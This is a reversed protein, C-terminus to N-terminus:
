FSYRAVRAVWKTLSEPDPLPWDDLALRGLCSSLRDWEARNTTDWYRSALMGTTEESLQWEATPTEKLWLLWPRALVPFASTVALLLLPVRYTGPQDKVGLYASWEEESVGVRILSYTNAFRKLARPTTFFLQFREVDEVEKKTLTLRQPDPAARTAEEAPVTRPEPVVEPPASHSLPAEDDTNLETTAPLLALNDGSITEIRDSSAIEFTTRVPFLDKVMAEFGSKEMADLQFPVQFIKELYDQPTAPLGLKREPQTSASDAGGLLRPYHDLLSQRLWRPDVAVVVAFLPFALLLHVAELVEVVREARCRDLDDIYLVIRDIKPLEADKAEGTQMLLKSLQEFDRRVLSVLGLHRRYDDASARQKLFRILQRGPAMESLEARILKMKEEAQQLTHRAEEEAQQKAALEKQARAADDKSERAARVQKVEDYSSELKTILKNGANIKAALWTSLAGLALVVQVITKGAGALLDKMWPKGYAALAAVLLPLVLAAALLTARQWSGPGTFVSLALARTRGALSQVEAARTELEDFSSELKPWGLGDAVAKLRAKVDENIALNRLDDLLNKLNNEEAKRLEIARRLKEEADQRASKATALATRAEEALASQNALQKKLTEVQQTTTDEREYLEAFLQDFIESVLNAWLNTDLYHWANFKIQVIQQHFVQGPQKTINRLQEDLLDMFYSKGAGWSGFLGISLPMFTDKAAILQALHGAYVNVGLADDLPVDITRNNYAARDPVFASYTRQYDIADVPPHVPEQVLANEEPGELEDDPDITALGLGPQEEQSQPEVHEQDTIDLISDWETLNDAGVNLFQRFEQRM